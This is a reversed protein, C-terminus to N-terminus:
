DARKGFMFEVQLLFQSSIERASTIPRQYALGVLAGGPVRYKVGALMNVVTPINAGGEGLVEVVPYFRDTLRLM